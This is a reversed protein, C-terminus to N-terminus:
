NTVHTYIAIVLTIVVGLFGVMGLSFTVTSQYQQNVLNTYVSLMQTLSEM